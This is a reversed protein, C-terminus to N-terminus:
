WGPMKGSCVGLHSTAILGGSNSTSLHNLSRPSLVPPITRQKKGTINKFCFASGEVHFQLGPDDLANFGGAICIYLSTKISSEDRSQKNGGGNNNHKDGTLVFANASGPRFPATAHYCVLLFSRDIGASWLLYHLTHETAVLLVFVFFAPAGSKQQSLM